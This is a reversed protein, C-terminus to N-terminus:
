EETSMFLNMKEKLGQAIKYRRQGVDRLNDERKDLRKMGTERLRRKRFQKIDGTAKSLREGQRDRPNRISTVSSKFKPLTAMAIHTRFANLRAEKMQVRGEQRRRRLAAPSLRKWFESTPTTEGANADAHAPQDSATQLEPAAAAVGTDEIVQGRRRRSQRFTGQVHMQWLRHSHRYKHRPAGLGYQVNIGFPLFLPRGPGKWRPPYHLKRSRRIVKYAEKRRGTSAKALCKRLTHTTTRAATAPPLIVGPISSKRAPDIEDWERLLGKTELQYFRHQFRRFISIARDKNGSRSLRDCLIPVWNKVGALVKAALHKTSITLDTGNPGYRKLIDVLYRETSGGRSLRKTEHNIILWYAEVGPSISYPESTMINFLRPAALPSIFGLKPRKYITSRRSTWMLLSLWASVPIPIGYKTSMGEVLAVASAVAGSYGYANALVNLTHESPWLPSGKRYAGASMNTSSGDPNLGWIGAVIDNIPDLSNDRAFATILLEYTYANPAVKKELMERVLDSAYQSMGELPWRQIRNPGRSIWKGLNVLNGEENVKFRLPREFQLHRNGRSISALYNNYCWVDPVVGSDIMEHWWKRAQRPRRLARCCDLIHAWEAHTLAYGRTKMDSKIREISKIFIQPNKSQVNYLFRKPHLARIIQVFHSRKLLQGRVSTLWTYVRWMERDDNNRIAELLPLVEPSATRVFATPVAMTNFPADHLPDLSALQSPLTPISPLRDFSGTQLSIIPRVTQYRRVSGRLLNLACRACLTSSM